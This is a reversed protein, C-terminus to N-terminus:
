GLAADNPDVPRCRVVRRAVFSIVIAALALALCSYIVMAFSVGVELLGGLLMPGLATAIVGITAVTGKTAGLNQVGYAEAWVSTMLPGAIGQSLGALALYTYVIWAGGQISLVGLAIAAPVLMYPFLRVAGLRDILPGIVISAIMRVAAFGIFASAITSPSWGRSGALPIQYLFLATLVLPLFLNGPLLLYFAPDRFLAVEVRPFAGTSNGVAEVPFERRLLSYSAPLFLLLISSGLIGWSIRWDVLHVLLVILMPLLGEGIPYGMSAVSLAKGRSKEFVRAMSTTATLSMLGQGTLRLGFIAGLLMPVNWAAAMAFCSAGMACGVGLCLRPLPTRDILRGFFPLCFASALTAAAYISGFTSTGLQFSDLLRPVFISILFTQGYSSFLTLLLGLSLIRPNKIIFVLM